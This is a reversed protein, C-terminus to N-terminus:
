RRLDGADPLVKVFQQRARQRGAAVAIGDAGRVKAVPADVIQQRM